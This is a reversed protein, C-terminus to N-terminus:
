EVVCVMRELNFIYLYSLRPLIRRFDGRYWIDVGGDGEDGLFNRRWVVSPFGGMGFDAGLTCCLGWEGNWRRVMM